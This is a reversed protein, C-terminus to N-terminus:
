GRLFNFRMSLFSLLAHRTTTVALSSAKKCSGVKLSNEQTLLCV